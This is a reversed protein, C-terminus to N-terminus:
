QKAFIYNEGTVHVLRFGLTGVFIEQLEAKIQNVGVSHEVCVVKASSFASLMSEVIQLTGDEVDVTIFDFKEGYCIVGPHVPQVWIPQFVVGATKWMETFNEDTTSVADNCTWFKKLGSDPSILAGVIKVNPNKGHLNILACLSTPNPEVLVASWGREILALSNSFTKGDFAGIDLLRGPPHGELLELIVKEEDNQSYSM